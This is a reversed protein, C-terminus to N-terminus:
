LERDDRAPYLILQRAVVRLSLVPQTAKARGELVEEEILVPRLALRGCSLPQPGVAGASNELDGDGNDLPVSAGRAAEELPPSAVRKM